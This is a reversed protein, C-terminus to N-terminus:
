PFTLLSLPSSFSLHTFRTNVLHTKITFLDYSCCFFTCINCIRCFCLAHAHKNAVNKAERGEKHAQLLQDIVTEDALMYTGSLSVPRVYAVTDGNWHDEGWADELEFAVDVGKRQIGKTIDLKM